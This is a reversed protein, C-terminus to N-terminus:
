RVRGGPPHLSVDVPLRGCTQPRRAVRSDRGRWWGRRCCRLRPGPGSVIPLTPSVCLRQALPRSRQKRQKVFSSRLGLGNLFPLHNCTRDHALSPECGASAPGERM